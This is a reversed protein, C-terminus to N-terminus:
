DDITINIYPDNPEHDHGEENNTIQWQNETNSLEENCIEFYDDPILKYIEIWVNFDKPPAEPFKKMIKSHHIKGVVDLLQRWKKADSLDIYDVFQRQLTISVNKKILYKAM